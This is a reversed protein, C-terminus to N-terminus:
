VNPCGAGFMPEPRRVRRDRAARRVRPHARPRTRARTDARASTEPSTARGRGLGGGAIVPARAPVRLRLRAGDRRDLSVHALDLGRVVSFYERVHDLAMVIIVIGRLIDVADVRLPAAAAAIPTSAEAAARVAAASKDRFAVVVPAIDLRQAPWTL